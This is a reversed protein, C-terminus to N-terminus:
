FAPALSQLSPPEPQYGRHEDWTLREITLCKWVFCTQVKWKFWKWYYEFKKDWTGRQSWGEQQCLQRPKRSQQQRHLRHPPQPSSFRRTTTKTIAETGKEHSHQHLSSSWNLLTTLTTNEVSSYLKMKNSLYQLTSSTLRQWQPSSKCCLFFGSFVSGSLTDGGWFEPLSM